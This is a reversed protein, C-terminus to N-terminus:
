SDLGVYRVLLVAIDDALRGDAFDSVREMLADVQEACSQSRSQQMVGLIRDEGFFEGDRRAESLGDSYMLLTDEVHLQWEVSEYSVQAFLGIPLHRTPTVFRCQGSVCSVPDTHGASALVLSGDAVDLVALVVTAFRDDDLQEYIVENAKELVSAPNPNGLALARVTSKIMATGAAAELGKGSIDGLLLGLRGGGVPFVDYFDGGVRAVDSAASYRHAVEVGEAEDPMALLATQLSEAVQRNRRESDALERYLLDYPRELATRVVAVYILYFAVVQALHGIVFMPGYPLQYLTFMIDSFIFASVAGTLTRLARNDFRRRNAWLSALSFIFIASIVYEGYIKFPTLGGGAVFAVPFNRWIMTSLLAPITLAAYVAFTTRVPLRRTLFIPAILLSISLMFRQILLLQLVVNTDFERFPQVVEYGLANPISLVVFFLFAIGVLLLYDRELVRRTSWVTTFVTGAVIMSFIEVLTRFLQYSHLSTAAVLALAVLGWIIFLPSTVSRARGDERM